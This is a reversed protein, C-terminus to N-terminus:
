PRAGRCAGRRHRNVAQDAIDYGEANLARAIASGAFQVDAMATTLAAADDKGMTQLALCVSCNTRTARAREADLADKLAM